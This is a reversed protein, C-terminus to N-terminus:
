ESAEGSLLRLRKKLNDAMRVLSAWEVYDMDDGMQGAQYQRYFETSSLNYQHEFEALDAELQNLQAQSQEAEHHLLKDLTRNMLDSAQGQEYLEALAHLREATSTNTQM